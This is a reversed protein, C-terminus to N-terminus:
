AEAEEEEEGVPLPEAEPAEKEQKSESAETFKMAGVFLGTFLGGSLLTNRFFEWTSPYGPMGGTLAQILGALTKPYDLYLWSAINTVLYFLIAGLLGGGLLTAFSRRRGLWRGLGILLAYGAETALFQPWSSGVSRYFVFQLICSLVAMVVLTGYWGVAGPLYLGACFAIAYAPSFNPPTLGPWRSVAFVAVMAVALWVKKNM